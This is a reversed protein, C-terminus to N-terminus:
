AAIICFVSLNEDDDDGVNDDEDDDAASAAAPKIIDHTIFCSMDHLLFHLKKETSIVISCHNTVVNDLSSM